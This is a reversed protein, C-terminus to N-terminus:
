GIRVIERCNHLHALILSFRAILDAAVYFDTSLGFTEFIAVALSFTREASFGNQIIDLIARTIGYQKILIGINTHLFENTQYDAGM